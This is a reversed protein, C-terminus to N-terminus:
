VYLKEKRLCYCNNVFEASLKVFDCSMFKNLKEVHTLDEFNPVIEKFREYYQQRIENYLPCVFLFHMEDEVVNHNCFICLRYERPINTYRGTEIKLPLIGFRLQAFVSRHTRNQIKYIYSEACYEKKFKIYNELKSVSQVNNLWETANLNLLTQRAENIDINEQNTYSEM